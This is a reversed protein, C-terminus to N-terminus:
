AVLLHDLHGHSIFWAEVIPKEGKPALEELYDLIYLADAPLGSDDVIFHGNKLQIVFCNGFHYLELMHLKTKAGKCNGEVYQEQYFLHPSIPLKRGVSIYCQNKKAIYIVTVVLDDKCYVANWVSEELGKSGNDVQKMFGNQSLLNLYSRYEEFSINKLEMVHNGAGCEDLRVIVANKASIDPIERFIECEAKYM